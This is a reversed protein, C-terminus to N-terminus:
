LRTMPVQVRPVTTAAPATAPRPRGEWGQDVNFGRRALERYEQALACWHCLLHTLCDPLPTEPLGYQERLKRRYWGTYVWWLGFYAAGLYCTFHVCRGDSGQDVIDAVCAFAACPFWVSCCFADCGDDECDFLGTQWGQRVPVAEVSQRIVVGTDHGDGQVRAPLQLDQSADVGFSMKKTTSPPLRLGASESKSWSLSGALRRREEVAALPVLLVYIPRDASRMENKLLSRSRCANVQPRRARPRGTCTVGSVPCAM